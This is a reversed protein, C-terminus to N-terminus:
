VELTHRYVITDCVDWSHIATKECRKAVELLLVRQKEHALLPMGQM